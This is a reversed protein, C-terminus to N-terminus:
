QLGKCIQLQLEMHLGGNLQLISILLKTFCNGQKLLFVIQDNLYVFSFLQGLARTKKTRVVLENGFLGKANTYLSVEAVVKEQKALDRTLRLICKYFDSMIEIDHEIEPKDYFFEPNLFYWAVHLPQHLQIEWRKDIIKFIEKYKEENRNFSRVITDKARTMAEYIYGMPTKKEGDVLRLVCVLPGLVKLCFVITNWFSPMLVINAITKGKQKKGM